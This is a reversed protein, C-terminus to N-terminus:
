SNYKSGYDVMKRYLNYKRDLYCDSDKYLLDGVQPALFAGEFKLRYANRYKINNISGKTNFLSENVFSRIGRLLEYSGSCFALAWTNNYCGITGDGDFIGRVLHRLLGGEIKPLCEIGTKNPVVGLQVLDNVMLRSYLSITTSSENPHRYLNGDYGILNSFKNLHDADKNHVTIRLDGRLNSLRVSGDALIFGLWYAKSESDILNFFSQNFFYKRNKNLEM